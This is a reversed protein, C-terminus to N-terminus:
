NDWERETRRHHRQALLAFLSAIATALFVAALFFKLALQDLKAPPAIRAVLMGWAMGAGAAIGLGIGRLVGRGISRATIGFPIIAGALLVLCVRADRTLTLSFYGLVFFGMAWVVALAIARLNKPPSPRIFM